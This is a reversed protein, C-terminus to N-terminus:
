DDENEEADEEASMWGGEWDVGDESDPNYPCDSLELGEDYAERGEQYPNFPTQNNSYEESM